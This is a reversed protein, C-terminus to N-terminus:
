LCMVVIFRIFSFCPPDILKIIRYGGGATTTVGNQELGEPAQGTVDIIGAPDIQITDADM